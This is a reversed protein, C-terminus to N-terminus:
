RPTTPDSLPSRLAIAWPARAQGAMWALELARDFASVIAARQAPLPRSSFSALAQQYADHARRAKPLDPVTPLQAPAGLALRLLATPWDTADAVARPAAPALPVHVIAPEDLDVDVGLAELAPLVHTAERLDHHELVGDLRALAWARRLPDPDSAEALHGELLRHDRHLARLSGPGDKPAVEAYLPWLVDEEYRLHVDLAHALGAVADPAPGQPSALRLARTAAAFADHRPRWALPTM